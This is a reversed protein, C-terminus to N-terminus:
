AMGGKDAEGDRERVGGGAVDFRCTGETHEGKVGMARVTLIM